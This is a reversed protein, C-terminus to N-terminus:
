QLTTTLEKIYDEAWFDNSFYLEEDDYGKKYIVEPTATNDVVICIDSIQALRKLLELSKNFKKHTKDKIVDNGGKLVRSKIRKVNLLADCTLVFISEIVYGLNKAIEPLILDNETSLSTEFTFSKRASLLSEKILEEERKAEIDSCKRCQKIDDANIYIGAVSSKDTLTSKGSGEPGAIIMMVPKESLDNNM